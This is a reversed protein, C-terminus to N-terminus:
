AAKRRWRAFVIGFGGLLSWIIITTPEPTAETVMFSLTIGVQVIIGPNEGCVYQGFHYIGPEWTEGPAPALKTFGFAAFYTPYKTSTDTVETPFVDPSPPLSVGPLAWEYVLLNPTLSTYSGEPYGYAGWKELGYDYPNFWTYGLEFGTDVSGLGARLYVPTATGGIPVIVHNSVGFLTQPNEPYISVGVQKFQSDEWFYMNSLIQISVSGYCDAITTTMALILVFVAIVR